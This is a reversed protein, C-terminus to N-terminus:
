LTVQGKMYLVGDGAIETRDGRDKCYLIGGRKSVQRSVLDTRGLRKSWFPVLFTHISGTVPDEAIGWGPAFYRCVFDHDAGEDAKATVIIGRAGDVEGFRSLHPALEAVAEASELVVLLDREGAKEIKHVEMPRAGLVPWLADPVLSPKSEGSPFDMVIRGGAGRRVNLTGRQRTDFRIEDGGFGLENFLVYASALTAHGCLPVECVPTFWRIAYGDGHPVFYATESLNNEAAVALMTDEPLWEQLPIVAAPNGALPRDTFADVQFIDYVPM